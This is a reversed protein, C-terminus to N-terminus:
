RWCRTTAPSPTRKGTEDISLTACETDATQGDKATATATYATNSAGTVRIQYLGRETTAPIGLKALDNTYTQASLYFKEQAAQVRLLTTTGETRNSRLVSGRYSNLAITGLIAIIAVVTMLEVLTM